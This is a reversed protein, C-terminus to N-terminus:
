RSVLESAGKAARAQRLGMWIGAVPALLLGAIGFLAGSPWGPQVRPWPSAVPIEALPRAIAEITTTQRMPIPIPEIPPLSPTPGHVPSQAAPVSVVAARHQVPAPTRGNGVVVRPTMIAAAPASPSAGGRGTRVPVPPLTVALTPPAAVIAPSAAPTPAGRGPASGPGRGPDRPGRQHRAGDGHDRSDASPSGSFGPDAAAPVAAPGGAVGCAFVVAVGAAFRTM